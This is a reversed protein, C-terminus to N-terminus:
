WAVLYFWIMCVCHLLLTAGGVWVRKTRDKAWLVLTFAYLSYLLYLSGIMVWVFDGHLYYTFLAAPGAILLYPIWLIFPAHGGGMFFFAYSLVCVPVIIPYFLAKDPTDIEIM